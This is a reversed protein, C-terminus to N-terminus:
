ELEAAAAPADSMPLLAFGALRTPNKPISPALVTNVEKSLPAPHTGPTHSLVQLAIQGNDLDQIRESSISDLKRTIHPPFQAFEDHTSAARVKPSLYHEELTIFPPMTTQRHNNPIVIFSSTRKLKSTYWFRSQSREVTFHPRTSKFINSIM